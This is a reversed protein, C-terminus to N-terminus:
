PDHFTNAEMLCHDSFKVALSQTIPYGRRSDNTGRTQQKGVRHRRLLGYGLRTPYCSATIRTLNALDAAISVSWKLDDVIDSRFRADYTSTEAAPSSWVSMNASPCVKNM